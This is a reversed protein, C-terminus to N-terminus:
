TGNEPKLDFHCLEKNAWNASGIEESGTEISLLSRSLCHFIAWLEEEPVPLRGGPRTKVTLM